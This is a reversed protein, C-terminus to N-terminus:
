QSRKRCSHFCLLWVLFVFQFLCKKMFMWNWNLFANHQPLNEAFVNLKIDEFYVYVGVIFVINDVDFM